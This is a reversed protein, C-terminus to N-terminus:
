PPHNTTPSATSSSEVKTSKRLCVCLLYANKTGRRGWGTREGKGILAGVGALGRKGKEKEEGWGVAAKFQSV